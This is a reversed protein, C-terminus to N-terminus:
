NIKKNIQQLKVLPDVLKKLMDSDPTDIMEDDEDAFQNLEKIKKEFEPHLEMEGSRILGIPIKDQTQERCISGIVVKGIENVVFNYKALYVTETDVTEEKKTLKSDTFPLVIGDDNLLDRIENLATEEANKFLINRETIKELQLNTYKYFLDRWGGTSLSEGIDLMNGYSLDPFIGNFEHNMEPSNM